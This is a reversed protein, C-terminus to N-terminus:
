AEDTGEPDTEAPEPTVVSEKPDGYRDAKELLLAYIYRRCEEKAVQFISELGPTANRAEARREPTDPEEGRKLMGIFVDQDDLREILRRIEDDKEDLKRNLRELSESAEDMQKQLRENEEGLRSVEKSQSLLMQLLDLRSLRRLERETMPM